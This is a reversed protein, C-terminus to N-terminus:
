SVIGRRRLSLLFPLTTLACIIETMGAVVFASNYAITPGYRSKVVGCVVGGVLPGFMFGLSGAMNFGAYATARHEPPALDGCMALNPAFMVASLVGSAFMAVPMWSMPIVGYFAYVVGFLLSGVCMPMVRGFRDTLRGVPYCLLAFPLLFLALLGGRQSPTLGHSEGLFLVFSTVIVGVCFRDIFAYAYPVLLERRTTLLKLAARLRATRQRGPAESLVFWTIFAAALAFGAGLRFVLLPDHQGIRGGLPSGCATGLMMIGGVMGMMRGRRDAPAWDAALAMATSLAIIHAAGEVFRIILLTPLTDVKMMLSLLCCDVLLATVLIPKRRGLRDAMAGGLPAALVAGIMNISMFSHTWFTSAGLRDSVIEKLVPVMMTVPLMSLFLVLSIGVALRWSWTQSKESPSAFSQM